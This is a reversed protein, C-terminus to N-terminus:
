NAWYDVVFVKEMHPRLVEQFAKHAPHIQYIEDRDKESSFSLIFCHTFGQHFNEPSKNIGWEFAKIVKIQKPLSAFSAVVKDIDAETSTPKFSFLVVHRLLKGKGTTSQAYSFAVVLMLMLSLVIYKKM